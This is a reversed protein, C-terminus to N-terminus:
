SQIFLYIDSMTFIHRLILLVSVRRWIKISGSVAYLFHKIEGKTRTACILGEIKKFFHILDYQGCGHEVDVRFPFLVAKVSSLM